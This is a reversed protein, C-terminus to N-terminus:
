RSRIAARHRAVRTRTGCATSCHRRPAGRDDSAFVRGCGDAACVGWPVSARGALAVALSFAGAAGVWRDWPEADGRDVHLHWPWGDHRQLSPPACYRQLIDNLAVAAADVDAITFIEALEDLVGDVRRRDAIQLPPDVREGHRRLVAQIDPAEFWRSTTRTNVLDVTRALAAAPTALLPLTSM